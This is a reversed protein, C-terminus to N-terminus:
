VHGSNRYFNARAPALCFRNTRMAGAPLAAVFTACLQVRRLDPVYQAGPRTRADASKLDAIRCLAALGCGFPFRLIRPICPFICKANACSITAFHTSKSLYQYVLIDVSHTRRMAM